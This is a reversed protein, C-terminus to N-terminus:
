GTAIWRVLEHLRPAKGQALLGIRFIRGAAWMCVVASVVVLVMGLAPQWWPVMPTAALRLLMLMPTAPPFLSMWVAFQGLPEQVVNFWVMMPMVLVLMVPLLLSQADKIETCASGIAIFIAGYLLCALVEFVLMWAILWAPVMDTYGYHAAVGYIGVLYVAVITLAVAVNGLLKGMMLQFPSASGLLVEAIRQQKEELVSTLMPQCVAMVSMFMLMLLGIPVFFQVARQEGEGKRTEGTSSKSYLGRQGIAIPTVADVIQMETLGHDKLRLLDAQQNIAIELWNGIENFAMSETHIRVPPGKDADKETETEPPAGPMGIGRLMKALTSNLNPKLADADIEVFAFIENHRIQDSLKLRLDDDVHEDTLKELMIPARKPHGTEKDVIEMENRVKAMAALPEFLRNTGDIVVIKKESTDVHQQLIAQIAVAGVSFLPMAILSIIFAKTRVLAKYERRAVVSIKGV